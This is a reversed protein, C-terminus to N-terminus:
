RAKQPNKCWSVQRRLWTKPDFPKLSAQTQKLWTIELIHLTQVLVPSRRVVRPHNDSSPFTHKKVLDLWSCPQNGWAPSVCHHYEIFCMKEEKPVAPILQWEHCKQSAILAPEVEILSYFRWKRLPSMWPWLSRPSSMLIGTDLNFEKKNCWKM